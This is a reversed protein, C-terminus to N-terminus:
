RQGTSHSSHASGNPTRFKSRRNAALTSSGTALVKLNSYEDAAIKLLRSPDALRHVEDFM